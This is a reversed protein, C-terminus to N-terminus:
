GQKGSRNSRTVYRAVDDRGFGLAAMADVYERTLTLARAHTDPENLISSVITGNRGMTQVFGDAELERYSRAVTNAALGLEEALRRVPPLKAGPGLEGDRIQSLLQDKLQEFPPTAVSQDIKLKM